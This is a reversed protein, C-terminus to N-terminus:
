SGGKVVKGIQLRGHDKSFKFSVQWSLVRREWRFWTELTSPLPVPGWDPCLQAVTSKLQFFINPCFKTTWCWWWWWWWWCYWYWWLCHKSKLRELEIWNEARKMSFWLFSQSGLVPPCDAWSGDPMRVQLPLPTLNQPCNREAARKETSCIAFFVAFGKFHSYELSDLWFCVSDDASFCPQKM